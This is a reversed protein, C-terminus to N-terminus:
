QRAESARALSSVFMEHGCEPRPGELLTSWLARSIRERERERKKTCFNDRKQKLAASASASKSEGIEGMYAFDGPRKAKCIGIGVITGERVKM